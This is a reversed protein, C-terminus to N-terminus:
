FVRNHKLRMEEESTWLQPKQCPTCGLEHQFVMKLIKLYLCEFWKKLMRNMKRESVTYLMFNFCIKYTITPKKTPWYYHGCFGFYEFEVVIRLNWRYDWKIHSLMKKTVFVYHIRHFVCGFHTAKLIIGKERKKTWKRHSKWSFFSINLLRSPLKWKFITSSVERTTLPHPFTIIEM